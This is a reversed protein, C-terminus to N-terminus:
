GIEGRRPLDAGRRTCTLGAAQMAFQLGAQLAPEDLAHLAARALLGQEALWALWAAQVTDGAGVTDVVSIPPAAVAVAHRRTWARAGEGGQTLLVVAVGQDLAHRAFAEPATGPALHHLDESSLKLIDTRPLVQALQRRWVAADPEVTPRVNPDYAIVCRGHLRHVAERLTQAIPEVVCAISGLHVARVGAPLRDLAQLPLDRDAGGQGYFAYAPVGAADLEVLSLTTPASTRWVAATDVGEAQLAALLRQGLVGTSVGGLFAARQGLRALGVAVNFPSGGVRAELQCGTPTSGAAFVDMLAEGCVLIM